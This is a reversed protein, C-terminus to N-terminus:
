VYIIKTCCSIGLSYLYHKVLNRLMSNILLVSNNDSERTVYVYTNTYTGVCAFLSENNLAKFIAELHRWRVNKSWLVGTTLGCSVTDVNM